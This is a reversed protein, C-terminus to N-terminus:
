LRLSEIIWYIGLLFSDIRSALFWLNLVIDRFQFLYESLWYWFPSLIWHKAILWM